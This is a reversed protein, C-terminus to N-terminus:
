ALVGTDMNCCKVRTVPELPHGSHGVTQANSCVVGYHLMM